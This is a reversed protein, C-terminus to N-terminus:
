VSHAFRTLHKSGTFLNAAEQEYRSPCPSLFRPLLRFLPSECRTFTAIKAPALLCRMAAAGAASQSGYSDGGDSVGVPISSVPRANLDMPDTACTLRSPCARTVNRSRRHSMSSSASALRGTLLYHAEFNM